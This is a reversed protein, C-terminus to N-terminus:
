DAPVKFVTAGSISGVLASLIVGFLFARKMIRGKGRVCALNEDRWCVCTTDCGVGKLGRKYWIEDAMALVIQRM